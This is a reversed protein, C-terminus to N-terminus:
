RYYCAYPHWYCWGRGYGWGRGYSLGRGPATATVRVPATVGGRQMTTPLRSGGNVALSHGGFALSHGGFASASTPITGAFAAVAAVALITNRISM